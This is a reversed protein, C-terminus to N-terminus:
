RNSKFFLEMANEYLQNALKEEDIQLVESM